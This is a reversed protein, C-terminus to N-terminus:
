KKMVDKFCNIIKARNQEIADSIFPNPRQGETTHWEGKEDQYRWPVNKRGNGDIAFLGTGQHIYPAYDIGSGVYGELNEGNEEVVHTISARLTGKDAPCNNKAANEVVLCAQELGDKIADPLAKKVFNEFNGLVESADVEASAM